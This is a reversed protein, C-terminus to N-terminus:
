FANSNNIPNNAPSNSSQDSFVASFGSKAGQLIDDNNSIQLQVDSSGSQGAPARLVISRSAALATEEVSNILWSFSLKGIGNANSGTNFGYPAALVSIEGSSGLGVRDTIAKNYLPGYLLDNIYFSIFPGQAQVLIIMEAQASGDKSIVKVRIDRQRPIIEDKWTLVQRGYGSQDQVAQSDKTWQYVLTKPDYEAGSSNALHPIAIVRYDNQYALPIKGQFFPPVYGGSEILLDVSGSKVIVSDNLQRGESTLATISVNLQKGSAPAKVQISIVGTGKQYLSGNLTWTIASSNLDSIYSQATITVTQGPIPNATSLTLGIGKITTPIVQASVISSASAFIALILFNFTLLHFIFPKNM